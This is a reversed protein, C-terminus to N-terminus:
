LSASGVQNEKFEKGKFEPPDVAGLFLRVVVGSRAKLVTVRQVIESPM